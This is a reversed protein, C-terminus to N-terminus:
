GAKVPSSWSTPLTQTDTMKTVVKSVSTSEASPPLFNANDNSAVETLKGVLPGGIGGVAFWVLVALLAFWRVRSRTWVHGM